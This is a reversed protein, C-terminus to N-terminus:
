GQDIGEVTIRLRQGRLGRLPATVDVDQEAFREIHGEVADEDLLWRPLDAFAKLLVERQPEHFDTRERGKLAAELLGLLDRFPRDRLYAYEWLDELLGRASAYSADAEDPRNSSCAERFADRARRALALCADRLEEAQESRRLEEAHEEQRGLVKRPPLPPSYLRLDPSSEFVPATQAGTPRAAGPLFDNGGTLNALKPLLSM